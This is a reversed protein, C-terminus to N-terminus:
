WAGGIGLALPVTCIVMWAWDIGHMRIETHCTHPGRIGIGKTLAAVSLDQAVGYREDVVADPHIGFVSGSSPAPRIDRPSAVYHWRTVFRITITM